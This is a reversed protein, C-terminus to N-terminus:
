HRLSRAYDSGKDRAGGQNRAVNLFLVGYNTVYFDFKSITNRRLDNFQAAQVSPGKRERHKARDVDKAHVNAAILLTILALLSSVGAKMPESQMHNLM